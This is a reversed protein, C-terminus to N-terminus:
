VIQKKRCILMAVVIACLVCVLEFGPTKPEQYSTLGNTEDFTYDWYGNGDSDINYNGDKKQVTTIQKSLYSYFTDYIENGDDDILYGLNVIEETDIYIIIDSSSETQNDTVTVM